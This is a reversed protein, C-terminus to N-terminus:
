WSPGQRSSPVHHVLFVTPVEGDEEIPTESVNFTIDSGKRNAMSLGRPGFRVLRNCFRVGCINRQWIDCEKNEPPSWKKTLFRFTNAKPVISFPREHSNEVFFPPQTAM